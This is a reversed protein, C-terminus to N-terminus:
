YYARLCLPTPTVTAFGVALGEPLRSCCADIAEALASPPLLRSCCADIALALLMETGM